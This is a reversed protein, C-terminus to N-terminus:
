AQLKGSDQGADLLENLRAEIRARSIRQDKGKGTVACEPCDGVAKGHDDWHLGNGVKIAGADPRPALYLVATGLTHRKDVRCLIDLWVHSIERNRKVLSM